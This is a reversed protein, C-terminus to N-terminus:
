ICIQKGLTSFGGAKSIKSLTDREIEKKASYIEAPELPVHRGFLYRDLKAGDAVLQSIQNDIFIRM